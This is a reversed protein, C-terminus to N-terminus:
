YLGTIKGEGDIDVNMASPQSPLGPILMIRGCIPVVFGAGASVFIERVTLEWGQPAGKMEPKDTLSLQTKAMCVMLNSMKSSEIIRLHRQAATEYEVRAAGYMRTAIAEIKDKLPMDLDYLFRFDPRERGLIDM